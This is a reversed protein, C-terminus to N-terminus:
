KGEFKTKVWEWIEPNARGWYNAVSVVVMTGVNGGAAADIKVGIEKATGSTAIFWHEPWAKIYQDPFAADIAPGIKANSTPATVAFIAM